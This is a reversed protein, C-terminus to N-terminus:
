TFSNLLHALGAGQSCAALVFLSLKTLQQLRCAALALRTCLVFSVFWFFSFGCM